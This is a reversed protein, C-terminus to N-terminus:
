AQPQGAVLMLVGSAVVASAAIRHLWPREGLLLTGILAAFIVGIERLGSVLALPLFASTFVVLAYASTSFLACGALRPWEALLGSALTRRRLVVAFVVVPLEMVFLWVVFSMPSQTSRVGLGDSVTYAAILGATGFAFLLGRRGIGNGANPSLVLSCIGLSITAIGITGWLTLPENAFISAGVAVIFPAMGRSIPYAQSFDGFKYAQLLFGIYAYHLLTSIILYVWSSPEPLPVLPILALGFIGQGLSVSSVVLLRDSAVKVLANWSAHLLAALLVLSILGYTLNPWWQTAM